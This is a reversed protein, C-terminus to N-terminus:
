KSDQTTVTYGKERICMQHDKPGFDSVWSNFLKAKVPVCDLADNQMQQAATNPKSYTRDWTSSDVNGVCGETFVATLLGLALVRVRRYERWLLQRGEEDPPIMEPLGLWHRCSPGCFTNWADKAW